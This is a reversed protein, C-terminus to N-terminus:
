VVLTDRDGGDVVALGGKLFVPRAKLDNMSEILRTNHVSKWKKVDRQSTICPLSLSSPDKFSLVGSGNHIECLTDKLVTLIHALSIFRM